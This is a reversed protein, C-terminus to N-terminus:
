SKKHSVLLGCDNELGNVNGGKEERNRCDWNDAQKEESTKGVQEYSGCLLLLAGPLYRSCLVDCVQCMRSFACLYRCLSNLLATTFCHKRASFGLVKWDRNGLCLSTSKYLYLSFFMRQIAGLLPVYGGNRRPESFFHSFFNYFATSFWKISAHIIFALDQHYLDPVNQGWYDSELHSFQGSLIEDTCTQAHSQRNKNLFFTEWVCDGFFVRLSYLQVLSWFCTDKRLWNM